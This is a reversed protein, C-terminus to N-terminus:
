RRGEGGMEVQVKFFLSLTKRYIIPAWLPGSLTFIRTSWPPAQTLVGASTARIPKELKSCQAPGQLGM